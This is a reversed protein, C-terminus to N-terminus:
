LAPGNKRNVSDGRVRYSAKFERFLFGRTGWQLRVLVAAEGQRIIAPKGMQMRGGQVEVVWYYLRTEVKQFNRNILDWMKRRHM